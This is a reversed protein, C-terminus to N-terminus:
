EESFIVHKAEAQYKLIHELMGLIAQFYHYYKRPENSTNM